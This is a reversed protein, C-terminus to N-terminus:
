AEGSRKSVDETSATVLTGERTTEATQSLEESSKVFIEGKCASCALRALANCCHLKMTLCSAAFSVREKSIKRNVELEDLLM